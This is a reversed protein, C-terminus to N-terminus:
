GRIEEGKGLANSKDQTKEGPNSGENDEHIWEKDYEYLLECLIHGQIPFVTTKDFCTSSTLRLASIATGSKGSVFRQECDTVLVQVEGHM